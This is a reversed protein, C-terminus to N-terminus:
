VSRKLSLNVEEYDRPPPSMMDVGSPGGTGAAAQQRRGAFGAEKPPDFEMQLDIDHAQVRPGESSTGDPRTPSSGCWTSTDRVDIIGTLDTARALFRGTGHPRGKRIIKLRDILIHLSCAHM